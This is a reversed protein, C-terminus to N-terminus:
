NVRQNGIGKHLKYYHFWRKDTQLHISRPYYRDSHGVNWHVIIDSVGLPFHNKHYMSWYLLTQIRRRHSSDVYTSKTKFTISQREIRVEFRQVCLCTDTRWFMGTPLANDFRVKTDFIKSPYSELIACVSRTQIHNARQISNLPSSIEFTSSKSSRYLPKGVKIGILYTVVFPSKRINSKIM